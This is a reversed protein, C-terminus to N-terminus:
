VQSFIMLSCWEKKLKQKEDKRKAKYPKEHVGGKRMLPHDHMPNRMKSKQVYQAM